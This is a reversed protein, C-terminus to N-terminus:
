RNRRSRGALSYGDSRCMEEDPNDLREKRRRQGDEKSGSRVRGPYGPTWRESEPPVTSLVELGRRRHWHTPPLLRIGRRPSAVFNIGFRQLDYIPNNAAIIESECASCSGTDVERIHLSRGFRKKVLSKLELGASEIEQVIDPEMRGTVVGKIIREKLIRYM